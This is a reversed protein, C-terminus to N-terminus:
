DLKECLIMRKAEADTFGLLYYEGGERLGTKKRIQQVTLPYNRISVNAKMEPLVRKLDKKTPKVEKIVKFVRGPFKSVYAESTYLHTNSHLKDLGYKHGVLKFAGAKIIAANPEYLYNSIPKIEVESNVEDAYKFSFVEDESQLNISIIKPGSSLEGSGLFVLEKVENKVSVVHVEEVGTLQELGQKIDFMPSVKLMYRRSTELIEPLLALINPSYDELRIVKQAADNRRAPDLYVLDFSEGSGIEEEATSNRIEIDLDLASFNHKALQCLWESREVYTATEFSKSLFSVDIGFGGTLDIMREGNVLSAKYKATSESSCQEMSIAPPFLLCKSSHWTPLKKKAKQRSQIQDLIRNFPWDPYKNKQLALQQVNVNAHEKIFLQIDSHLLEEIM